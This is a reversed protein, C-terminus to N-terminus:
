QVEQCSRAAGTLRRSVGSSIEDNGPVPPNGGKIRLQKIRRIPIRVGSVVDPYLALSREVNSVTLIMDDLM